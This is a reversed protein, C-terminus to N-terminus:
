DIFAQLSSKVVAESIAAAIQAGPSMIIKGTARSYAECAEEMRQRETTSVSIKELKKDRKEDMRIKRNKLIIEEETLKSNPTDMLKGELLDIQDGTFKLRYRIMIIAESILSTIFFIFAASARAGKKIQDDTLPGDVETEAAATDPKDAKAPLSEKEDDPFRWSNTNANESPEKKETLQSLEAVLDRPQEKENPM